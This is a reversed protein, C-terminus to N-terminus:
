ATCQLGLIIYLSTLVMTHQGQITVELTVPHIKFGKDYLVAPLNSMFERMDVVITQLRSKQVKRGGARCYSNLLKQEMCALGIQNMVRQQLSLHHFWLHVQQLSYWGLQVYLARLCCFLSEFVTVGPM